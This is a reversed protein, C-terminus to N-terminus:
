SVRCGNRQVGVAEIMRVCLPTEAHHAILLFEFASQIGRPSISWIGGDPARDGTRHMQRLSQFEAGLALQDLSRQITDDSVGMTKAVAGTVIRVRDADGAEFRLLGYVCMDRYNLDKTSIL